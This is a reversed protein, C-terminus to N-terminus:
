RLSKEAAAYLHESRDYETQIATQLARLILLRQMEVSKMPQWDISLRASIWQASQTADPGDGLFVQVTRTQADDGCFTLNQLKM